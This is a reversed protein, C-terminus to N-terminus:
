LELAALTKVDGLTVIFWFCSHMKGEKWSGGPSASSGEMGASILERSPHTDESMFLGQLGQLCIFLGFM